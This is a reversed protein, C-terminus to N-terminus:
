QAFERRIAEGHADVAPVPGPARVEGDVLAPPAPMDVAGTPSEVRVRSLAPHASLGAVDNVEGFAIDAAALRRRLEDTGTASFVADIVADLEARHACRASNDAFRADAPLGADGLVEACLRGFERENQVAVLVEGGDGTRYAGYPHISPHSLGVRGTVTGGYDHHLLPVTMWDAMAAFLSTSISAGAGSRRRELLAELVATYAYMGCSVDCASVGVRGPGEPRGTISCLGSEAQVLLDYAKMGAYGGAGGYGTIDVTILRPNRRRMGAPDLGSRAAAGPALNQVFVDAGDVIRGVLARDDPDKIDVVLSEKGRNLWVFYASEGHVVGDYRRAFDGGARELKIVRAGAEALRSTCFPAAVAQELAVVLIGELPRPAGGAM